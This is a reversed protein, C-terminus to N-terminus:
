PAQKRVETSYLFPVTKELLAESKQWGSDIMKIYYRAYSPCAVTATVVAALLLSLRFSARIDAM